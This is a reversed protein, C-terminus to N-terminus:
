FILGNERKGTEAFPLSFNASFCSSAVTIKHYDQLKPPFRLNTRAAGAQPAGVKLCIKGPGLM